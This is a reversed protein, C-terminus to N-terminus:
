VCSCFLFSFSFLLDDYKVANLQPGEDEQELGLPSMATCLIVGEPHSDYAIKVSNPHVHMGDCILGYFPRPLDMRSGLLGIVGPDRHHFQPMANFLHAIFTAGNTVAKEAQSINAM